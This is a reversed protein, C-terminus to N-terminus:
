KERKRLAFTRVMTVAFLALCVLGAAGTVIWVTRWKERTKDATSGSGDAGGTDKNQDAPDVYTPYRETLTCGEPVTVSVNQSRLIVEELSTMGSFLDPDAYTLTEPLDVRKVTAAGAFVAGEIRTVPKDAIRAPVVVTEERGFYGNITVGDETLDYHFYGESYPRDAASVHLVTGGFLACVLLVAAAM